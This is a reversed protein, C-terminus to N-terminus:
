KIKEITWTHGGTSQKKVSSTKSGPQKKKVPSKEKKKTKKPKGQKKKKKESDNSSHEKESDAKDKDKKKKDKKKGKTKVLSGGIIGSTYSEPQEATTEGGGVNGTTKDPYLGAGGQKQYQEILKAADAANKEEGRFGMGTDDLPNYERMGTVKGEPDYDTEVIKATKGTSDKTHVLETKGSSDQVWGKLETTSTNKSAPQSTVTQQSSTTGPTLQQSTKKNTTSKKQTKTTATKATKKQWPPTSYIKPQGWVKVYDLSYNIYKGNEDKQVAALGREEFEKLQRDILRFAGDKWQQQLDQKTTIERLHPPLKANVM